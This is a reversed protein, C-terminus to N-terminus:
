APEFSSASLTAPAQIRLTRNRYRVRCPRPQPSRIAAHQLEGGAWRLDVEFGGRALLGRAEGSPWASPLAPLLHLLPLTGAGDAAPEEPLSLGSRSQLLMELIGAAGGFNGDIQFPPHSCLLNPMLGGL